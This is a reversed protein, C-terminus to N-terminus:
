LLPCPLVWIGMVSSLIFFSQHVYLPINSLWLFSRMQPPPNELRNYLTFYTLFLFVFTMYSCVHTSDLFITSIFDSGLFCHLCLFPSWVQPCAPSSSPSPPPLPLSSLSSPSPPPFLLLSLSSPFPPLPSSPSPPLLPYCPFTGWRTYISYGAPTLSPSSVRPEAVVWLPATSLPSPPLSLFSPVYACWTSTQCFAVCYQLAIIRWNFIFLIKFIIGGVFFEHKLWPM